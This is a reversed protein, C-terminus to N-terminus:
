TQAASKLMLIFLRSTLKIFQSLFLSRPYKKKYFDVVQPARNFSSFMSPNSRLLVFAGLRTCACGRQPAAFSSIFLSFSIILLVKRTLSSQLFLPRASPDHFTIKRAAL